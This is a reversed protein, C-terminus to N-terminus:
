PAVMAAPVGHLQQQLPRPVLPYGAMVVINQQAYCLYCTRFSLPLDPPPSIPLVCDALLIPEKNGGDYTLSNCCLSDLDFIFSLNLNSCSTHLSVCARATQPLHRQFQQGTPTDTYTFTDREEAALGPSIHRRLQARVGGWLGEAGSIRFGLSAGM